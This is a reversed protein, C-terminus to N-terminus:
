LDQNFFDSFIRKIKESYGWASLESLGRPFFPRAAITAGGQLHLDYARVRGTAPKGSKRTRTEGLSRGISNVPLKRVYSSIPIVSADSIGGNQMLAAYEVNTTIGFSKGDEGVFPNMSGKLRGTDSLPKTGGTRKPGDARHARIFLSIKSLPAWAEPRGGEKFNRQTEETVKVAAQYLPIQPNKLDGQLKALKAKIKDMGSISVRLAIGM